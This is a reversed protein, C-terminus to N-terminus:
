GVEQEILRQWGVRVFHPGSVDGEDGTALVPKVESTDDLQAGATDYAPSQSIVHAAIQNDIGHFLGDGRTAVGVM